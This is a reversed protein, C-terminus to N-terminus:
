HRQPQKLFSERAVSKVRLDLAEGAREVRLAFAVGATGQSWLARYFAPLSAVPLGGVARVVDGLSVGAAHAPGRAVLGAVQIDGDEETAYVGLWPRAPLGTSGSDALVQLRAAVATVPVFLNAQVTEDPDGPTGDGRV